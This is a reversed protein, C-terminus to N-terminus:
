LMAEAETILLIHHGAEYLADVEESSIPEHIENEHVRRYGDDGPIFLFIKGTPRLRKLAKKARYKYSAIM